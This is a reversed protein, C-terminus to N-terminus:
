VASSLHMDCRMNFIDSACMLNGVTTRLNMGCGSTKAQIGVLLLRTEVCFHELKHEARFIVLLARKTVSLSGSERQLSLKVTLCANM